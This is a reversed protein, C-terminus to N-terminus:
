ILNSKSYISVEPMPIIMCGGRDIYEKNRKLIEDFFSWAFVLVYDPADEELLVSSPFIELHSGPTFFGHKAPADDIMYSVIDNTIECYQIMTNARGSAGYGAITFGQSKLKELLSKLEKKHNFVKNAFEQFSRFDDYGKLREEKELLKVSDSINKSHKGQRKGVYFRLSGAHIPIPKVDFVVMDYRKFHEIASLISYYFLHEHYIMDYQMENIVKGLYHVEFVFVGDDSLAIKVANTVGKIDPIHAYVNNAMIMDIQGYESVVEHAIKETFYDNKVIIRDDSISSVVNEAPDVGIVNKIGYDALPRLLVGDNCGFELVTSENPKLFRTTVEQAYNRFHDRLTKISSSFYFYNQFLASPPVIDIIQVSFCDQCFCLRMPFKKENKFDGPKLFSGALAVKGFDMILDM